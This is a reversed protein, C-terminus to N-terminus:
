HLRALIVDAVDVPVITMSAGNEFQGTLYPDEDDLNWTVNTDFQKCLAIVRDYASRASSFLKPMILLQEDSSYFMIMYATPDGLKREYTFSKMVDDIEM